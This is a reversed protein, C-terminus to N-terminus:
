VANSVNWFVTCLVNQPGPAFSNYSGWKTYSTVITKCCARSKSNVQYSFLANITSIYNECFLVKLPERATLNYSGCKKKLFRYNRTAFTEPCYFRDQAVKFYISETPLKNLVQLTHTKQSFSKAITLWKQIVHVKCQGLESDRLEIKVLM